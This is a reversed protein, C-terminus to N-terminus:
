LKDLKEAKKRKAASEELHKNFVTEQSAQDDELINLRNTECAILDLKRQIMTEKTAKPM